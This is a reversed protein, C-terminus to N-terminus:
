IQPPLPEGKALLRKEVAYYAAPLVLLTLATATILGGVIVTALPRQVDSGISHSLAAPMLGLTAVSATLLVPRLRECAGRLVAEKLDRETAATGPRSDAFVWRNLNAVMIVGNQVAVGFLAIFGVASSVNLTMGRLHLAALGGVLALPVTLMILAAFRGQGFAAFLILFILGLVAPIILALRAQARQQNEFQGGWKIESKERDYKLKDALAGQAEALFSALDRGRLDLKVTLHRRGMERSIVSEGPGLTIEALDALPIRAGGPSSVSLCSISEPNGRVSEIFRVSVDYSKDGVFVSTVAKGGIATEILDGIDAVNIGFRAAAKRNIKIQLQPLSPEQDIAVDAAGRINQLVQVMDQAIRRTETFDNGYVKVVLDSHAGAIMDNVMDFIPQSFGVRMGALEAKLKRNMREILAQKDGGWEQYPKLGICGEIHSFTFPDVGEDDSGTQTVVYSVEPFTRVVKRYDRAMDTAKQISIGPPLSVQMWISGEDLYPLFERGVTFALIAAIVAAGLGPLLAIRPRELIRLLLADYRLRLWEFVPNRWRKGPKRYTLFALAPIAGLAFFLAGLLSYGVTFAMPTFLKKEVRQFAFLPLYAIIIVLTAFFMPKAVELAAELANAESLPQDPDREHRRLIVELLVIAGDVIIGFDIAGLSLLNAPIKTCHMLVFAWLLSFPITLAVLVAGRVSGLFLILVLVVLGMGELLTRSVTRLTTDVLDTRDLYPVVKVDPPLLKTNLEEVQRHVGELVQSPNKGRLLQVIGSVADDNDDKGLVGLREIVGMGARGIDKVFIPTGGKQTVVIDQLDEVKTIAGLGRVVLSQEGRVIVSGGSNVNNATIADTVNKLTLNYQALKSPDVLVQFQYNEGGFPDVGIVGPVEKLRPIVVWNNLDRLDRPSRLKSEVTYRYIEGTPATISDLGAQVGPPLTVGNVREQVRQREFYDETGEEFVLTIWSLGFASQSRMVHLGPIGKLERELPITIQQEVEEAAHGPYKTVVHATVDGIDPYAEIALQKLAYFGLISLGAFVAFMLWRRHLGFRVFRAIM